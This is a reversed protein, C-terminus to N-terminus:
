RGGGVLDRLVQGPVTDRIVMQFNDQRGDEHEEYYISRTSKVVSVLNGRTDVVAAGSSGRAYPATINVVTVVRKEVRKRVIRSVIGYTFVFHNRAPHSLVFVESGPRPNEWGVPLPRFGEGRVRIVALDNHSDLALIETVPYTRGWADLVLAQMGGDALVHHNTAVVGDAGIAFASASRGHVQTCRSCRYGISVVFTSRIVRDRVEVATLREESRDRLEMRFDGPEFSELMTDVTPVGKERTLADLGRRIRLRLEQDDVIPVDEQASVLPAGFAVVVLVSAVWIRDM